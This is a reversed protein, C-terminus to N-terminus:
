KLRSIGQKNQIAETLIKRDQNRGLIAAGVVKENRVFIQTLGGQEESGKVVVEDAAQKDTDGIFTIDLGLLNIAYSSVQGYATREGTITKAV